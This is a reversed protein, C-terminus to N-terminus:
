CLTSWEAKAPGRLAMVVIVTVKVSVIVAVKVSVIVAVKVSVIVTVCFHGDSHCALVMFTVGTTRVTFIGGESPSHM